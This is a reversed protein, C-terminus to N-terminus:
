GSDVRSEERTNKAFADRRLRRQGVASSREAEAKEAVIRTQSGSRGDLLAPRSRANTDDLSTGDAVASPFANPRRAAWSTLAEEGFDAEAALSADAIRGSGAMENGPEILITTFNDKGSQEALDVPGDGPADGRSPSSDFAM